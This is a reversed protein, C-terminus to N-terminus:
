QPLRAELDDLRDALDATAYYTAMQAHYIAQTAPDATEVSQWAEEAWDRHDQHDRKSM